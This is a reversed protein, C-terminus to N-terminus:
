VGSKPQNRWDGRMEKKEEWNCIWTGIINFVFLLFGRDWIQSERQNGRQRGKGECVLQQECRLGGCSSFHVFSGRRELDLSCM